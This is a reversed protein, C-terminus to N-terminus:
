FTRNLDSNPPHNKPHSSGGAPSLKQLHCGMAAEKNKKVAYREDKNIEYEFTEPVLVDYHM